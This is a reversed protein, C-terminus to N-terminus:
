QGICGSLKLKSIWKPTEEEFGGLQKIWGGCAFFLKGTCDESLKKILIEQQPMGLGVIIIKSKSTKAVKLYNKKLYGDVGEVIAGNFKRLSKLPRFIKM